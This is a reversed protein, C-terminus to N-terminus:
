PHPSRPVKALALWTEIMTDPALSISQIKEDLLWKALDPHDSPGQGCIGIYKKQKNCAEIALHLLKKVALNREDFLNAVLNSDRDLGLTLQTLDNSGISFGDCYKLFEDALLANSPIECMMYVKLNNIGRKLGFKEMLQITNKLEEVTRVFPVMLVANTLEMENRLRKFALCELEFCDRFVKSVYRAAGRFGIMPNEEAPEFEKGGLLNAYENSKFDSFRFVVEKPYFAAAITAAGECLKQIYFERPSPFAATKQQIKKRMVAPLKKLNLIAAPHIGISNGIIFEIRALGVGDNPLFQYDFAREPNGLIMGLRVPLKPMAKISMKDVKFPVMGEYVYGIEGEACSVTIPENEKIVQTANECGVVAPIGLERAVIAAHCTRGGRNTVIAGALKMIPEWDPDTMDTVLIDGSKFNQAKEPNTIIHAKGQGIKQGVSRGQTKVRGKQLLKFRQMVTKEEQSKVTEPRAQVIYLQNDIGDKAWEIDMPKEYHKEIMLGLKALNKIENDTLCYKKQETETVKVIKVPKNMNKSYIMKIKKTGLHRSLIANSNKELTPKFVIYEDPNVLGQVLTEGLGHTATILIVKDFGTETDITFVVGSCAKDSRIMRQVTVSIATQDHSIQRHRRYSIARETYLSAFVKKVSQLLTDINGVNLYTEQQGAFSADPLDEATASSRVAVSINKGNTLQQYHKKIETILQPPLPTNLILKRIESSIKKLQKYNKVNLKKLLSKIQANLQNQKLFDQYAGTTVAFGEPVKIGLQTLHQIMEGLSANKGGVLALDRMSVDQLPLIYSM